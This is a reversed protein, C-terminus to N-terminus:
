LKRYKPKVLDWLKEKICKGKRLNFLLSKMPFHQVYEAFEKDTWEKKFSNIYSYEMEVEDDECLYNNHLERAYLKIKNFFEDPTDKLIDEIPINEKLCKWVSTTSIETMINHLRIYDEFKIKCRHGNSYKIVYGEQNPNNLQKLYSYLDKDKSIFYEPVVECFDIIGYAQLDINNFEEGTKTNIVALLVLKEEGKYDVVIRNEPYIIEFCYTFDQNLQNIQLKQFIENGKIAQESIFSGRSTFIWQDKYWFAIGLSGDMKEYINYSNTPTHKNEEYNWFKPIPRGVIEQIEIDICLGRCMITLDNWYGNFTTKVSYNYISLPLTSHTSKILYGENYLKEIDNLNVKM